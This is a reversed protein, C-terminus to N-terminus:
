EQVSNFTKIGSFPIRVKKIRGSETIVDLTLQDKKVESIKEVELISDDTLEFTFPGKPVGDDGKAIKKFLNYKYNEANAEGTALINTKGHEIRNEQNIKKARNGAIIPFVVPLILGGLFYPFRLKKLYKEALSASWFASFLVISVALYCYLISLIRVPTGSIQISERGTALSFLKSTSFNLLGEVKDYLNFVLLFFSYTKLEKEYIGLLIFGILSFIVAIGIVFIKLKINEESASLSKAPKASEAIEEDSLTDPVTKQQNSTSKEFEIVRTLEGGVPISSVNGQLMKKSTDSTKKVTIREASLRGELIAQINLIVAEWSQHRDDKKKEMMKMILNNMAPSMKPNKEIPPIVEDTIHKALVSMASPGEFPLVGTSIHYLTAGLSYIDARFDLPESKAQEPSIYHPTGVVDGDITLSNDENITKAVGLDLLKPTSSLDIIINGPKIDRHLITFENWAYSLARSVGLAIKLSEKESIIKEEALKQQLQKGKIYSSALYYIGEYVGADFATVINPHDLKASHKIENIFRSTFNPNRSYDPHLIKLAVLRGMTTQEALWVEGMGGFGLRNILKFGAIVLGNKLTSSPYSSFEIAGCKKCLQPASAAELEFGCSLCRYLM